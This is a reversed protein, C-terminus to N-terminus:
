RRSHCSAGRCRPARSTELPRRTTAQARRGARGLLLLAALAALIGPGSASGGGTACSGNMRSPDKATAGADSAWPNGGGDALSPQTGDSTASSSGGGGDRPSTPAGADTAPGADQRPAQTGDHLVALHNAVAREGSEGTPRQNVLQGGIVMGTSGGGDFCVADHAGLEQLLVALQNLSMGSVPARRGEVVVLILKSGTADLGAATRPHDTTCFAGCSKDKAVTQTVQGGAVLGGNVGGVVNKWSPDLPVAKGTTDVQCQKSATCALFSAYSDDASKPWHVGDGVALGNPVFGAAYFDGNVSVAAGVKKAFVTPVLGKEDPKTARVTIGPHSLDIIAAHIEKPESTSRHLYRIGPYPDTWVDGARARGSGFGFVLLPLALVSARM